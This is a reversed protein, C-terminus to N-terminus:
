SELIRNVFFYVPLKPIETLESDKEENREKESELYRSLSSRLLLRCNWFYMDNFPLIFACNILICNRVYRCYFLEVM